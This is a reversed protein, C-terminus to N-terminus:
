KKLLDPNAVNIPKGNAFAVIQDIAAGYYSEYNERAVYGLHPTCVVNDMKLLPHNADLVPEEDFVDVAARGPRGNTLAAALVADGILGSRSTNVILASPKMRALDEPKVIGRTEANLPLHLTVIDAGEFFAERSSAAAFGAAKAKEVSAGRGFCVVQMGFARGVNAVISGIRGYAYVGLTKGHLSYGLTTQWKGKKLQEVEFPIHRVAGLILGWTLEATSASMGGGGASVLVGRETCAAVDIHTAGPGTQSILKLSTARELMARTFRTRQQTLLVADFGKLRDAIRLLDNDPESFITVEHGKLKAFCDLTKVANQYDDIIAVKM